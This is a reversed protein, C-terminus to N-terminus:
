VPELRGRGAFTKLEIDAICRVKRYNVTLDGELHFTGDAGEWDNQVLSGSNPDLKV